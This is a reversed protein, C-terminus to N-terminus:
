SNEEGTKRNALDELAAWKNNPFRGLAESAARLDQDNTPALWRDYRTQEFRFAGARQKKKDLYFVDAHSGRVTKLSEIIQASAEDILDSTEKLYKVNDPSMQLFVFNDAASWLANAAPITFYNQPRPTLGILWYGLKRFTEAAEIIFSRATENDKGLMGLEELVIVGGRGPNRKIVSRIEEIVSMTMLTQLTPDKALADLDYIFFSAQSTSCEALNSFYSAYIGDGFFPSLKSILSEVPEQLREGREAPLEALSEIFEDITIEVSDKTESFALDGLRFEMGQLDVKRLYSRKLADSICSTHEAEFEFNPSTLLIATKLLHTLFQIKSEDYHGRFPSFPMKQDPDFV